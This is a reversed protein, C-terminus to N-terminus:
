PSAKLCVELTTKHHAHGGGRIKKDGAGDDNAGDLKRKETNVRESALTEMTSFSLLSSIPKSFRVAVRLSM